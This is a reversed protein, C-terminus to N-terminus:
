EQGCHSSASGLSTLILDIQPYLSLFTYFAGVMPGNYLGTLAASSQSVNLDIKKQGRLVRLHFPYFARQLLDPTKVKMEWPVPDKQLLLPCVNVTLPLWAPCNTDDSDWASSLPLALFDLSVSLPLILSCGM